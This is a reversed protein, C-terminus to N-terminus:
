KVFALSIKCIAAVQLLLYLSHRFKRLDCEWGTGSMAMCSGADGYRSALM